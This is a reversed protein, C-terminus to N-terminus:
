LNNERLESVIKGGRLILGAPEPKSCSVTLLACLGSLIILLKIYKM